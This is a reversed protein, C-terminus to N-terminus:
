CALSVRVRAHLFVWSVECSRSTQGRLRRDSFICELFTFPWSSGSSVLRPPVKVASRRSGWQGVAVQFPGMVNNVQLTHSTCSLRFVLDNKFAGWCELWSRIGHLRLFTWHGTRLPYTARALSKQSRGTLMLYEADRSSWVCLRPNQSSFLDDENITKLRFVVAPNYTVLWVLRDSPDKLAWVKHLETSKM